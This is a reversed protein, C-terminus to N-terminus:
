NSKNREILYIREGRVFGISKGGKSDIKQGCGLGGNTRREWLEVVGGKEAGGM